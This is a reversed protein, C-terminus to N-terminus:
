FGFTDSIDFNYYPDNAFDIDNVSSDSLNTIDSIHQIGFSFDIGKCRNSRFKKAKKSCSSSVLNVIANPMAPDVISILKHCATSIAGLADLITEKGKTSGACERAFHGQEGCRYCSNPSAASSTQELVRKGGKFLVTMELYLEILLMPDTATNLLLDSAEESKENENQSKTKKRIRLEGLTGVLCDVKRWLLMQILIM